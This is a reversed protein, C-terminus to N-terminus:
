TIIIFCKREFHRLLMMITDAEKKFFDQNSQLNVADNQQESEAVNKQQPTFISFDKLSTTCSEGLVPRPM